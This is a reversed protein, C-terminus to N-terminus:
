EFYGAFAARIDPDDVLALFDNKLDALFETNRDSAFPFLEDLLAQCTGHAQEVQGSRIQAVAWMLQLRFIGSHQQALLQEIVRIIEEPPRNLRLASEAWLDSDGLHDFPDCAVVKAWYNAASDTDGTAHALLGRYFDQTFTDSDKSIWYEAKKFNGAELYMRGLVPYATAEAIETAALWYKEAEEWRKWRRYIFFMFTNAHRLITQDEKKRALVRRFQQEAETFQNALFLVEGLSLWLWTQDPYQVVLSRLQDLGAELQGSEVTLRALANLWRSHIELPTIELLQQYLNAAAELEGRRHHARAIGEISFTLFKELEPRYKFASQGLKNLREYIRRYCEEAQDYCHADWLDSAQDLLDEYSGAPASYHDM